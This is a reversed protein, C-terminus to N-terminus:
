VMIELEKLVIERVEYVPEYESESKVILEYRELKPLWGRLTRDHVPNAARECYAEYVRSSTAPHTNAMVELVLRQERSLDSLRSCVVAQDADPKSDDSVAWTVRDASGNATTRVSHSLLAITDRADLDSCRAIYELESGGIVSPEVGVSM